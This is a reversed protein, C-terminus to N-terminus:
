KAPCSVTWAPRGSKTRIIARKPQFSEFWMISLFNGYPVNQHSESYSDHQQGQSHDQWKCKLIWSTGSKPQAGWNSSKQSSLVNTYLLNFVTAKAHWPLFGCKKYSNMKNQMSQLRISANTSLPSQTLITTM